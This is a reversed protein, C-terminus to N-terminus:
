LDRQPNENRALEYENTWGAPASDSGSDFGSDPANCIAPALPKM